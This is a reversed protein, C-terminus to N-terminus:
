RGQTCRRQSSFYTGEFRSLGVGERIANMLSIEERRSHLVLFFTNNTVDSGIYVYHVRILLGECFKITEFSFCLFGTAM